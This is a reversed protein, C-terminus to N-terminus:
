KNVAKRYAYLAWHCKNHCKSCLPKTIELDWFREPFKEVPLIHHLHLGEYHPPSFTRGCGICNVIKGEAVEVFYKDKLEYRHKRTPRWKQYPNM